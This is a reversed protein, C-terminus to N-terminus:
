KGDTPEDQEERLVRSAKIKVPHLQSGIIERVTAEASELEAGSKAMAYVRRAITKPSDGLLRRNAAEIAGFVHTKVLERPILRGETEENDLRTKRILELDKLAILWDRLNRVTGFRALLPALMSAIQELDEASQEEVADESSAGAAPRPATPETPQVLRRKTSGTPKSPARRAPKPSPTPAGDTGPEPWKAGLYERVRPHDLDIRDRVMAPRLGAKCAKSIAPKSV